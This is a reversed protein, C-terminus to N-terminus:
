RLIREDATGRLLGGALVGEADDHLLDLLRYATFRKVERVVDAVFKLADVYVGSLKVVLSGFRSLRGGVVLRHGVIALLCERHDVALRRTGLQRAKLRM